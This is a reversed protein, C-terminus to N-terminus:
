TLESQHREELHREVLKRRLVKGIGSRPLDDALVILAPVKYPALRERCFARIAEASPTEGQRPVVWAKVVEGKAADPVAAVGVDAVAPHTAIVEEIERPWVQYGSVKILDKKRDVIFVYGEEDMYGLDGTYLWTDGDSDVRLIQRTEEANEWYGPTLQAARLIIEGVESTPLIREGAEQDVIRVDVDPLPLGVSGSKSPGRAPNALCAMQAETLSYGEVIRGGTLEEFRKRTEALLPAGGSFCMKISGFDVKRAIVSPHSLLLNFIAPVACFFAPNAKDIIHLMDKVDRPNVVLLLPMRAVFALSQGGILGFVHFMPLPLMLIDRWDSIGSKLWTHMQLGALVMARHTGMVGKPTGTTGGSPLISAIDDPSIAVQARAANAHSELLEAMWFDGESLTVRDGEKEERLATFLLRSVTPLYEKINTAIIRRLTTAPQISKMREYFRTLVVATEAGCRELLAQLEYDTYIPNMPAIIAGAKWAGIEAIIFQPCNPLLLAVRDGKAVGLGILAAAFAHTLRDLEGHSIRTGKFLLAAHDPRGAATGSLFDLLTHEPYPVLSHPVDPDYHRLWPREIV